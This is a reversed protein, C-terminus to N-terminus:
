AAQVKARAGEGEGEGAGGLVPVLRVKECIVAMMKAPTMTTAASM